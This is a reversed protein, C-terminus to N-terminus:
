VNQDVQYVTVHRHTFPLPGSEPPRGSIHSLEVLDAALAASPAHQGQDQQALLM